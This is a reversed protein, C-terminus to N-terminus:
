CRGKESSVKSFEGSPHVHNTNPVSPLNRLFEEQGKLSAEAAAQRAKRRDHRTTSRRGGDIQAGGDSSKKSSTEQRQQSVVRTGHPPINSPKSSSSSSSSSSRRQHSRKSLTRISTTIQIRSACSCSTFTSSSRLSRSLMNRCAVSSFM